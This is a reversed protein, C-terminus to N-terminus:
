LQKLEALQKYTQDAQFKLEYDFKNVGLQYENFMAKAKEASLTMVQEYKELEKSNIEGKQALKLVQNAFIVLQGIAPLIGKESEAVKQYKSVYFELGSKKGGLFNTYNEIIKKVEDPLPTESSESSNSIFKEIENIRPYGKIFQTVEENLRYYSGLLEEKSKKASSVLDEGRQLVIKRINKESSGVMKSKSRGTNETNNSEFKQVLTVEVAATNILM